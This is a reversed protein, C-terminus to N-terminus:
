PGLRNIEAVSFRANLRVRRGAHRVARRFKSFRLRRLKKPRPGKKGKKKVKKKGRTPKAVEFRLVGDEFDFSASRIEPIRKLYSLVTDTCSNCMIGIIKAEYRGPDLYKLEDLPSRTKRYKPVNEDTKGKTFTQPGARMTRTRTDFEKRDIIDDAFYYPDDDEGVAKFVTAPLIAGILLLLIASRKMNLFSGFDAQM